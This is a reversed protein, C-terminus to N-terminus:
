KAVTSAKRRALEKRVNPPILNRFDQDWFSLVQLNEWMVLRSGVRTMARIEGDQSIVFGVSSAHANCYRMMSRHRMGYHTPDIPILGQAHAKPTRALYAAEVERKTRIEVGFGKIVLDPTALVLGDVCSLSSIFRVSGTIEKEFDGTDAEYIREDLYLDMPVTRKHRDYHEDVIRRRARWTKIESIGLGVLADPLRTYNLRYKIDVDARSSSILLAGGHRYRQISILIRCLTGIWKDTLMEVWGDDPAIANEHDLRDSVKKISESIAGSLRRSIPGSWFVNNQSKVLSDQALRGVFGHGRYVTIDAPGNTLIQFLGAPEYTGETERVLMTNFHVTQDILGWIFFSEQAGMYAALCSSWPDAAKSLKILSPVTLPLRNSLPFIKWRDPRVRRPRDPDPNNPDVLAVRLQLLRGEETKLSALYIIELFRSLTRVGPSPIRHSRLHHDVVSALDSVTKSIM